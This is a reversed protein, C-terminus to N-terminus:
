SSGAAGSRDRDEPNAKVEELGTNIEADIQEQDTGIRAETKGLCAETTERYVKKEELWIDMRSTVTVIRTEMEEQSTWINRRHVKFNESSAEVKAEMREQNTKMKAGMKAMMEEKMEKLNADTKEQNVEMRERRAQTMAELRGITAVLREFDAM